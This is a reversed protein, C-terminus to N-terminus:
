KITTLISYIITLMHFVLSAWFLLRYKKYLKLYKGEKISTINSNMKLKAM